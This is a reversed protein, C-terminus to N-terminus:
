SATDDNLEQYDIWIDDGYNFAIEQGYIVFIALNGNPGWNTYATSALDQLGPDQSNDQGYELEIGTASLCLTVNNANLKEALTM